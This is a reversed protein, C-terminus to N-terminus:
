DNHQIARIIQHYEELTEHGIAKLDHQKARGISDPPQILANIRQVQEKNPALELIGFLRQLEDGKRTCIRDYSLIHVREPHTRKLALVRRHVANWYQLADSPSKSVPRNLFCDGWLMLQYQNTSFAMDLGDRAVHIYEVTEFRSLLANAFVHTNPEKWAILSHQKETSQKMLHELREEFWASAHDHRDGRALKNLLEIDASDLKPNGRLCRLFLDFLHNIHAPEELLINKRRFLLSFLLNDHAKNLDNGLHYGLAQVIRAILRTGSGGTGGIAITPHTM